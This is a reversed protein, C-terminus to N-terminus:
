APKDNPTQAAHRLWRAYADSVKRAVNDVDVALTQLSEDDINHASGDRSKGNRHVLDHRVRVAALLRAEQEDDNFLRVSLMAECIQNAKSLDHWSLNEFYDIVKDRLFHPKSALERYSVKSDKFADLRKITENIASPNKRAIRTFTDGLFAELLTIYQQFLVKRLLTKTDSNGSGRRLDNLDDRSDSFVDYPDGSIFSLDFEEIEHPELKVSFASKVNARFSSVEIQNQGQIYFGSTSLRLTSKTGCVMCELTLSEFSRVEHQFASGQHVGSCNQRHCGWEFFQVEFENPESESM